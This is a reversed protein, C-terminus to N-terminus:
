PNLGYKIRSPLGLEFKILEETSNETENIDYGFLLGELVEVELRELNGDNDHKLEHDVRPFLHTFVGAEAVVLNKIFAYLSKIREELKPEIKGFYEAVLNIHAQNYFSEFSRPLSVYTPPDNYVQNFHEYWLSADDNTRVFDYFVKYARFDVIQMVVLGSERAMGLYAPEEILTCPKLGSAVRSISQEDASHIQNEVNNYPKNLSAM